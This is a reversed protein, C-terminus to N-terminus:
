DHAGTGPPPEVDSVPPLLYTASLKAASAGPFSDSVARLRDDLFEQMGLFAHEAAEADGDHPLYGSHAIKNRLLYLNAWYNGVPRAADTIDWSGGLHQALERKVLSAFPLQARKSDIDPRSTGLDHLLLGWLDYLLTEAAVQFSVIADASDGEYKRREARAQWQITSVFPKQHLIADAADALRAEIAAVSIPVRAKADPHMLMLGDQEWHNELNLRGVAIVPRLERSSIPRMSNDWRALGYGALFLNLHQLGRRFAYAGDAPDEGRLLTAPTELSVWQEYLQIGKGAGLTDPHSGESGYFESLAGALNAPLFKHDAIQRNTFRMRVTAPGGFIADDGKSTYPHTGMTVEFGSKIGLVLPLRFTFTFRFPGTNAPDTRYEDALMTV